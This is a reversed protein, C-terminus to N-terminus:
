IPATWTTKEDSLLGDAFSRGDMIPDVGFLPGVTTLHAIAFSPGDMIPDVVFSPGATTLHVIVSSPGDMTLDEVVVYAAYDISATRAINAPSRLRGIRERASRSRCGGVRSCLWSCTQYVRRTGKLIVLHLMERKHM